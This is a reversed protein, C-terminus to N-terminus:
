GGQVCYLQAHHLSALWAPDPNRGIDFATKFDDVWVYYEFRKLVEIIEAITQLRDHYMFNHLELMMFPRQALIRQAGMLAHLDHGEVDIKLFDVWLAPDVDDDLRVIEISGTEPFTTDPGLVIVNGSNEYIPLRARESGVGFPHVVVNQLGNLVANRGVLDANSPAAEWAHVVGTPGTCKAFLTTMFGQHAGVDLVNFGPKITDICWQRERDLLNPIAHYWDEAVADEIHMDIRYPGVALEKAIFHRFAEAM